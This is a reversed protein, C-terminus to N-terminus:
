DIQRSTAYIYPSFIKSSPLNGIKEEVWWSALSAAVLARSIQWSLGSRDPFCSSLVGFNTSGLYGGAAVDLGAQQHGLLFSGWDHPNHKDYVEKNWRRVLAGLVGAMNPIITFMVGDRKLYRKKATLVNALSDFHEVVGFSIVIDFSDHLQSKEVFMDEHVVEISVNANQAHTSLLACGSESYDLGVFQGTPFKNALYPLWVSDGAGIELIRKNNMDTDLLKELILRDSHNKFGDIDLFPLSKRRNYTDDWYPKDTLKKM